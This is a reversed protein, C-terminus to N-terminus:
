KKYTVLQIKLRVLVQAPRGLFRPLDGAPGVTEEGFRGSWKQPGVLRRDLPLRLTNGLSCFLRPMIIVVRGMRHWPLPHAPSCGDVCAKMCYVSV